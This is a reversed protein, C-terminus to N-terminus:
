NPPPPGFRCELRRAYHASSEFAPHWRELRPGTAGAALLRERLPDARAYDRVAHAARWAAHLAALQAAEGDTLDDRPHLYDPTM